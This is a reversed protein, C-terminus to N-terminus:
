SQHQLSHFCCITALVSIVFGATKLELKEELPALKIKNGGM